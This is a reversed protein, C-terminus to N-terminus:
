VREAPDNGDGGHKAQGVTAFGDSATQRQRDRSRRVPLM